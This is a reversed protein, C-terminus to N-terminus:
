EEWKPRAALPPCTEHFKCQLDSGSRKAEAKGDARCQGGAVGDHDSGLDVGLAPEEAVHDQLHEVM